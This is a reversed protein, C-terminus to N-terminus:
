FKAASIVADTTTAHDKNDFMNSQPADGFVKAAEVFKEFGEPDAKCMKLAHEKQDPHIKKAAIAADVKSVASADKNALVEAGLKENDAKLTANEAQLAAMADKEEQTM